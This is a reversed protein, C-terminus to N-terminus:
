KYESYNQLKNKEHTGGELAHFVIKQHILLEKNEVLRKRM